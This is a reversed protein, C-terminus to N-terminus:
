ERVDKLEIGNTICSIMDNILDEKTRLLDDKGDLCYCDPRLGPAFEVLNPEGKYRGTKQALFVYNYGSAILRAIIIEVKQYNEKEPDNNESITERM